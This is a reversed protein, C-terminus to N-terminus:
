LEKVKRLATPNFGKIILWLALVIENLGIPVNLLTTIDSSSNIVGFMILIATTLALASGTLGWVSLWRPILKSQFFVVYYMLAGINFAMAGFVISTVNNVSLIVSGITQFYTTEPSGLSIFERSLPILSLLSIAAVIFMVAEILRFGVAGLALTKNFKNLVPYLSIGIGACAAAMVFQMFVGLILQNEGATMKGLFDNGSTLPGILALCPVGAFGLLFLIGTGIANKRYM